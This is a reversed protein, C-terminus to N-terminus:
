RRLRIETIITPRTSYQKQENADNRVISDVIYSIGAYVVKDDVELETVDDHTVVTGLTQTKKINGANLTQTTFVDKDSVYFVGKYISEHSYGTMNEDYVRKYYKCRTTKDARSHRLDIGM